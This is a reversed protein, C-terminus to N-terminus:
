WCGDRFNLYLYLIHIISASLLSTSEIQEGSSFAIHLIFTSSEKSRYMTVDNRYIVRPFYFFYSCEYRNSSIAENYNFSMSIRYFM